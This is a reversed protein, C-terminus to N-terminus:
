KKEINSTKNNSSSSGSVLSLRLEEQTFQSWLRDWSLFQDLRNIVQDFVDWKRSFGNLAVRLLAVDSTKNGVITLEDRALRVRTLYSVVDEGKQMKTTKM